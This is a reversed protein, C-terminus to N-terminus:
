DHNLRSEITNLFDHNLQEQEPDTMAAEEVEFIGRLFRKVVAEVNVAPGNAAEVTIRTAVKAARLIEVVIATRVVRFTGVTNNLAEKVVPAAGPTQPVRAAGM